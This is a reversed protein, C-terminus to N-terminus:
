TEVLGSMAHLLEAKTAAGRAFSQVVRGRSLVLIRDSLLLTEDLESSCLLIALGQRALRQCLDYIERKAGVDIGRTPDDLLLVKPRTALWKGLLVKQQNGGSLQGLLSETSETVVGLSEITQQASRETADADILGFRTRLRELVLLTANKKLSAGLMLGEDRRSAPILAVGAAIADAPSRLRCSRELYEVRGSSARELGFLVHFLQRVGAGELGAVGVIEGARLTLDVPGLGPGACLADARLVVPADEAVEPRRELSPQEVRGLMKAIVEQRETEQTILTGQYRGDRLVTIRDSVRLVDELRQSVYLVTVGESVLKQILEFLRESEQETLASNPEDFIVLESHGEVARAIEVLQREGMSLSAVKADPSVALGVRELACRAQERMKRRELLGGRLLERNLFLNETLSRHGFLNLEQFVTSIGRRRADLPGNPEFAEGNLWIRGASPREVGALLNMLSSKGAGNGGVVAHVEGRNVGFSVGDLATVGGFRKSVSELRVLEPM